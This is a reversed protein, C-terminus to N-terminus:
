KNNSNDYKFYQQSQEDISIDVKLYRMKDDIKKQDLGLGKIDIPDESSRDEQDDLEEERDRKFEQIAKEIQVHNIVQLDVV